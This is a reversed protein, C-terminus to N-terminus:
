ISSALFIQILFIHLPLTSRRPGAQWNDLVRFKPHVPLHLSIVWNDGRRLGLPECTERVDQVGKAFEVSEIVRDIVHIVRNQLVCQLSGRAIAGEAHAWAIQRQYRALRSALVDKEQTLSSVQDELRESRDELTAVQDELAAKKCAVINNKEALVQREAESDRVEERMDALAGQLVKLQGQSADALHVRDAAVVMLASTQTAAYCLDDAM